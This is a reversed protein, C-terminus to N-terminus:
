HNERTEPGNYLIENLKNNVTNFKIILEYSQIIAETANYFEVLENIQTDKATILDESLGREKMRKLEQELEALVNSLRAATRLWYPKPSRLDMASIGFLEPKNPQKM